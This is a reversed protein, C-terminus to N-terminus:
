DLLHERLHDIEGQTVGLELVYNTISGHSRRVLGVMRMMAEPVASTFAAPM